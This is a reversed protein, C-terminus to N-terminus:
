FFAGALMDSHKQDIVKIVLPVDNLIDTRHALAGDCPIFDAYKGNNISKPM